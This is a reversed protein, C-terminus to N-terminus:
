LSWDIPLQHNKQLIENIKSFHKCGFFGNFASLPSPHSATLIFHKPNTILSKKQKADNGWLVFIISEDRQNLLEIVQNTFIEWGKNKHSNAYHERVTLVTNLLLVGQKAWKTLNGTKPYPINLDTTLEKFINKLSAPLPVHDLVSFCLGHAQGIEHYPDQGLIVVKVDKYDTYKLANFIDYMSPFIRYNAYEIKLFERLKLYYEKKFEECLLEDWQNNLKVM